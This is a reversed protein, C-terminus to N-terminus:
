VKSKILLYANLYGLNNFKQSLEIKQNLRKLQKAAKNSIDKCNDANIEVAESLPLIYTYDTDRIDIWFYIERISKENIGNEFLINFHKIQNKHFDKVYEMFLNKFETDFQIFSM